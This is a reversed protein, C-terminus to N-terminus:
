ITGPVGIPNAQHYKSRNADWKNGPKPKLNMKLKKQSKSKTNNLIKGNEGCVQKLRRYLKKPIPQLNDGMRCRFFDEIVRLLNEATSKSEFCISINAISEGSDIIICGLAGNLYSPKKKVNGWLVQHILKQSDKDDFLTASHANIQFYGIKKLRYDKFNTIYNASFFATQDCSKVKMPFETLNSNNKVKHGLSNRIPLMDNSPDKFYTNTKLKLKTNIKINTFETNKNKNKYLNTNTNLNVKLNENTETNTQIKNNTYLNSKQNNNNSKELNKSKILQIIAKDNKISNENKDKNQNITFLKKEKNEISYTFKIMLMLALLIALQFLKKNSKM